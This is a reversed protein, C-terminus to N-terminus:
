AVRWHNWSMVQLRGSEESFPKAMKRVTSDRLAQSIFGLLNARQSESGLISSIYVLINKTLSLSLNVLDQVRQFKNTGEKEDM